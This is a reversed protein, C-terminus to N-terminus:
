SGSAALGSSSSPTAGIANPPASQEARHEVGGPPMCVEADWELIDLCSSLITEERSIRVLEAYAQEPNM